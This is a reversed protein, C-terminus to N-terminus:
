AARQQQPDKSGARAGSAFAAGRGGGQRRGSAFLSAFSFARGARLCLSVAVVAFGTWAVASFVLADGSSGAGKRERDRADLRQFLVAGVAANAFGGLALCWGLAVHSRRLPAPPNQKKEAAPAGGDDDTKKPAERFAGLAAQAVVCAVLAVGFAGHARLAVDADARAWDFATGTEGARARLAVALAAVALSGGCTQAVVHAVFFRKKKQTRRRKRRSGDKEADFTTTTAITTPHTPDRLNEHDDRANTMAHTDLTTHSELRSKKNGFAAVLAGILFCSWAALAVAGHALFRRKKLLASRAVSRTARGGKALNVFSAGRGLDHYAKAARTSVAYAVRVANSDSTESFADVVSTARTVDDREAVFRATLTRSGLRGGREVAGRTIELNANPPGVVGTAADYSVLAYSGVHGNPISGPDDDDFALWAVVADAPFMAGEGERRQFAVAISRAGARTTEIAFAVQSPGIAPAHVTADAPGVTWRLTADSALSSSFAYSSFFDDSDDSDDREEERAEDAVGDNGVVTLELRVEYVVMRSEVAQATVTVAGGTAPATFYARVRTKSSASRHGVANGAHCSEVRESVLADAVAFAGANAAHMVFGKFASGDPATLLLELRTNPAVATVDVSANSVALTYGGGGSDSAGHGSRADCSAPGSSRADSAALFSLVLAVRLLAAGRARQTAM